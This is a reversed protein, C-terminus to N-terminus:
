KDRLYITRILNILERAQKIDEGHRIIESQLFKVFASAEAENLSSIIAKHEEDFIM